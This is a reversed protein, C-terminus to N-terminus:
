VGPAGAESRPLCAGVRLCSRRVGTHLFFFVFTSVFLGLVYRLSGVRDATCIHYWKNGNIRVRLSSAASVASRPPFFVDSGDDDM